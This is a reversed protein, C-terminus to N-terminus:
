FFMLFLPIFATVPNILLFMAVTFGIHKKESGVNILLMAAFEVFLYLFVLVPEMSFRDFFDFLLWFGLSIVINVIVIMPRASIKKVTLTNDNNINKM